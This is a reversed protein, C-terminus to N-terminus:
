GIRAAPLPALRQAAKGDVLVFPPMGERAANVAPLLERKKLDLLHNAHQEAWAVLEDWTVPVPAAAAAREDALIRAAVSPADNLTVAPAAEKKRAGLKLGTTAHSQVAMVSAIAPGPLSNLAALLQEMPMPTHWLEALKACRQATWRKGAAPPVAPAAAVPPPTPAPPAPVRGGPGPPNHEGQPAAMGAAGTESDERAGKARGFAAWNGAQVDTRLGRLLAACERQQAACERQQAALEALHPALVDAIGRGLAEALDADAEITIRLPITM